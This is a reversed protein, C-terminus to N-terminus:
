WIYYWSFVILVIVGACLLALQAPLNNALGHGKSESQMTM